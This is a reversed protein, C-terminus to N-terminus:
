FKKEKLFEGFYRVLKGYNIPGYIVKKVIGDPGVIISTPFSSVGVKTAFTKGKEYVQYPISFEEAFSKIKERTEGVSVAIIEVENGYERWFKVLDPVEERCPPCWTVFFNIFVPKPPIAFDPPAFEFISKGVIDKVTFSKAWYWLLFIILSGFFVFRFLKWKDKEKDKKKNFTDIENTTQYM